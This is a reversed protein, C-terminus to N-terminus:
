RGIMRALAASRAPAFCHAPQLHRHIALRNSDIYRLRSVKGFNKALVESEGSGLNAAVFGLTTNAGNEHVAYRNDTTYERRELCLSRLNFRDLAQRFIAAQMCELLCEEVMAGNLAADTCRPQDHCGLTQQIALTGGTFRYSGFVDPGREFVGIAATRTVLAHDVRNKLCGASLNWRIKGLSLFRTQSDALCLGVGICHRFNFAASAKRIVVFKGAHEVGAGLTGPHRVCANARDVGRGCAFKLAHVRHEGM